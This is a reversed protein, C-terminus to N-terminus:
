EARRNPLKLQWRIMDGLIPYIDNHKAGFRMRDFADVAGLDRNGEEESPLFAALGPFHKERADGTMQYYRWLKNSHKFDLSPIAELLFNLSSQDASRGKGFDFALKALAKLVVPQAAVTLLKADPSALNPIKAVVKWFREAVSRFDDVDQPRAGSVNTKNVFLLANIGVLDKRAFQPRELQLSPQEWDVVDREVINWDALIDEAL